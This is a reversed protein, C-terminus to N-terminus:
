HIFLVFAFTFRQFFYIFIFLFRDACDCVCMSVSYFATLTHPILIEKRTELTDNLANM